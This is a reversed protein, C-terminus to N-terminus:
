AGFKGDSLRKLHLMKVEGVTAGFGNDGDIFAWVPRKTESDTIPSGDKHCNDTLGHFDNGNEDTVTCFHMTM